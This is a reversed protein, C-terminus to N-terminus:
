KGPFLLTKGYHGREAILDYLSPSIRVLDRESIIGIPKDGKIVILRKVGKDRMLKAAENLDANQVVTILPKSMFDRVKGARKRALARYVLDTTTIVGYPINKRDVVVLSGIKKAKMKRAAETLTATDLITVMPAKMSDEVRIGTEAM